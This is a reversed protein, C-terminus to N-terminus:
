FNTEQTFSCTHVFSYQINVAVCDPGRYTIVNVTFIADRRQIPKKKQVKETGLWKTTWIFSKSLPMIKVLSKKKKRKIKTEHTVHLETSSSVFSGKFDDDRRRKRKKENSRRVQFIQWNNQICSRTKLMPLEIYSLKAFSKNM